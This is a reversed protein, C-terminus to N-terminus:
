KPFKRRYDLRWLFRSVDKATREVREETADWNMAHLAEHVLVELLKRPSVGDTRVNLELPSNKSVSTIGKLPGVYVQYKNGNFIHTKVPRM